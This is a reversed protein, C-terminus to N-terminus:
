IDKLFVGVAEFPKIRKYWYEFQEEDMEGLTKDSGKPIFIPNWGFGADGRPQEPITGALEREFLELKHGDFYAITAGAVASRDRFDSLLKCIDELTMEELFWKIYPGPLTGLATFSLKTDEVIVPRKLMEYAAKAKHTVIESLSVSQLEQIDVKIFDIDLGIMRSFYKAKNENGTVYVVEKM